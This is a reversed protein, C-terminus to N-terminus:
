FEREEGTFGFFLGTDNLTPKKAIALVGTIFCPSM